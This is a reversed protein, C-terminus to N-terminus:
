SWSATGCCYAVICVLWYFIFEWSLLRDGELCGEKDEAAEYHVDGADFNSSLKTKLTSLTEEGLTASVDHQSKRYLSLLRRLM